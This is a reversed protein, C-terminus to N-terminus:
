VKRSYIKDICCMTLLTTFQEATSDSSISTSTCKYISTSRPQDYSFSYFIVCLMASNQFGNIKNCVSFTVTFHEKEERTWSKWKKRRNIKKDKQASLDRVFSKYRVRNDARLHKFLPWLLPFIKKTIIKITMNKYCLCCENANGIRNWLFFSFFVCM